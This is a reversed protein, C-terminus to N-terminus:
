RFEYKIWLSDVKETYYKLIHEEESFVLPRM